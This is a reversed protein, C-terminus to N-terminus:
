TPIQFAVPDFSEIRLVKPLNRSTSKRGGSFIRDRRTAEDSLM